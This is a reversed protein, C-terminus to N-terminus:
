KCDEEYKWKYGYMTNFKGKACNGINKNNRKKGLFENADAVCDFRRIFKDDLTFMLVAKANPNNKGKVDAHNESMKRKAEETHHKGYNPNNEGSHTESLKKRVEETRRKGKNAKSIKKKTQESCPKGYNPNNEGKLAQSMKKKTEETHKYGSVGEGGITINYGKDINTTDYLAIYCQELLCAEHKTLNDFLIIHKFNDWGYKKIARYFHNNCYYGNGNHWRRNINQKGTIGYYRKGNPAIHVYLKYNRQEM